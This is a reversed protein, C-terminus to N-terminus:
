FLKMLRLTVRADEQFGGRVRIDKQLGAQIQFDPRVFKSAQLRIQDAETAIGNDVGDLQQDGGWIKSYGAALNWTPDSPPIYSLWTQFQYTNDQELKGRGDALADDNDGYWMADLSAQLVFGKGLAQTGGVQLNFKWRNEGLNLAAGPDNKGAPLFLYPVIAFNTEPTSILWLPAALIPDGIGGADDLAAGGLSGNYLKGYPLLIQPAFRFGGLDMYHVYRLIGVQSYLGTGTDIDTGDRTVFSDRKAFTSYSLVADTGAPAPVLDLADLDVALAPGALGLGVAAAIGRLWTKLEPM